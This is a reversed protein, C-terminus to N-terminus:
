LPIYLELDRENRHLTCLNLYVPFASFSCVDIVPKDRLQLTVRIGLFLKLVQDKIVEINEIFLSLTLMFSTTNISQQKTNERKNNSFPPRNM